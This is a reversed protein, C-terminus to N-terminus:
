SKSRAIEEALEAGSKYHPVRFIMRKSRQWFANSGKVEEAWYKEALAMNTKVDVMFADFSQQGGFIYLKGDIIKWRDADGGWPIGYAIGNTCYGGFQPLYRAPDAEFMEKNKASAFWFTIEEHEVQHEQLGMAHTNDTFYSVVDHGKLFLRSAQDSSVANVPRLDGGPSQTIFPGCGSLTVASAVVFAIPLKRIKM